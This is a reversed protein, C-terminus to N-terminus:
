EGQEENPDVVVTIKLPKGARVVDFVLSDSYEFVRKDEMIIKKNMLDKSLSDIKYTLPDYHLTNYNEGNVAIIEDGKRLGASRYYNGANDAIEKVISKGQSNLASAYHFRRQRPDIIRHFNDIPKLGMQRNKFDFLVNFHKLFHLGILYKSSIRNPKDFTHVRFSDITMDNMFTATTTYHRRYSGTFQTWVAEKKKNFFSLEDAHHMLAMEWPMGTDVLYPGNITVTDGDASTIQLPFQVLIRKNNPEMPLWYYSDPIIFDAQPHIELYNNEFNLEWVHTTDNEPFGFIGDLEDGSQIMNRFNNINLSNYTVDTEGIKITYPRKYSLNLMRSFVWGSGTSTTDPLYTPIIDPNSTCFTSDLDFNGVIFGTDFMMNAVVDEDLKLPIRIARYDPTITFYARNPYPNIEANTPKNGTCCIHTCLFASLILFLFTIKKLTPFLQHKM